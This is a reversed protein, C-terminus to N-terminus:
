ELLVVISLLFSLLLVTLAAGNIFDVFGLALGHLTGLVCTGLLILRTLVRMHELLLAFVVLRLGELVDVEACGGCGIEFSSGERFLSRGVHATVDDLFM